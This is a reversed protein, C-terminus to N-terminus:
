PLTTTDRPRMPEDHRDRRRLGLLGALGLLGIWGYDHDDEDVVRTTQVPERPVTNQAKAIGAASSMGLTVAVATGLLRKRLAAYRM